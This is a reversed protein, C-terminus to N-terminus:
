FRGAVGIYAHDLGFSPTLQLAQETDDSSGGMIGNVLFYTGIGAVVGAGIGFAFELAEWTPAENCIQATRRVTASDTTAPNASNASQCIDGDPGDRRFAARRYAQYETERELGYKLHAWSGIWAAALGAAVVLLAAGTVIDVPFEGGSETRQLDAHFSAEGYAEVSVTSGFTQHGPAVVRVRRSGAPVNAIILAGNEDATGASEDDIFIEAGPVNVAVRLSGARPAGSLAALYRRAPERLDDIDRRVGAITDTATSEIQQTEANYLHLYLSFDYTAGPNTRRVDGYLIREATLTEAMQSLCVPDPEDCGHALAMQALTVERDSVSWGEVQSAAHRLAGTLNRAFEDDGEVSRIGLVIVSQASALVPTTLASGLILASLISRYLLRM